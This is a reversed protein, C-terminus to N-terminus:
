DSTLEFKETIKHKLESGANIIEVVRHYGSIESFSLRLAAPYDNLLAEGWEIILVNHQDQYDEVMEADEQSLEKLRYLDLHMLPLRGSRYEKVLTFTPSNVIEKIGLELAIQQTLTTKGAGLDGSLFILEGGHLSQAILKGLKKTSDLDTLKIKM